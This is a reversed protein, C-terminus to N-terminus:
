SRLIFGNQGRRCLFIGQSLVHGRAFLSCLPFHLSLSWLLYCGLRGLRGSMFKRKRESALSPRFFLREILVLHLGVLELRGLLVLLHILPSLLPLLLLLLLEPWLLLLLALQDFYAILLNLLHCGLELPLVLPYTGRRLLDLVVEVIVVISKVLCACENWLRGKINSSTGLVLQPPGRRTVRSV